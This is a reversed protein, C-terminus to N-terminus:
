GGVVLADPIQYVEVAGIRIIQLDGQRTVQFAADSDSGSARGATFFIKRQGGDPTKLEVAADGGGRRIVGAKCPGTKGGVSTVCKVDATAHYPTGAVRADRSPRVASAAGKVAINLTYRATENRRAASRMLYVRITTNGSAPLAGSFNNGASSGIFMAEGNSGPAMVNFYASANTPKFAVTLVQGARANVTYDISQDGKISGTITSASSGKKFVVTIRQQATAPFGVCIGALILAALHMRNM